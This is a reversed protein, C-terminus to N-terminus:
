TPREPVDLQQTSSAREDPDFVVGESELLEAPDRKDTPDTWRFRDSVRGDAQLVRHANPCDACATVHQGLPQAATGIAKALDGYTTWKGAPIDALLEHLDSWDRRSPPDGQLQDALTALDTGDELVWWSPGRVKRIEGTAEQIAQVAFKSAQWGRRQVGM